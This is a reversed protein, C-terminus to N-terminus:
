STFRTHPLCTLVKELFFQLFNSLYWNVYPLLQFSLMMDKLFCPLWHCLSSIHFSLEHLIRNFGTINKPILIPCRKIILNDKREISWKNKFKGNLKWEPYHPVAAIVEVNVKNEAFWTAMEGTYKGSGTLEPSFNLGYILMKM